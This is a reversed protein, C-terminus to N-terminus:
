AFTPNANCYISYVYIYKDVMFVVGSAKSSKTASILPRKNHGISVSTNSIQLRQKLDLNEQELSTIRSELDNVKKNLKENEELLTQKEEELCTLHERKRKRSLLAAARNKILREQRKQIQIQKQDLQEQQQKDNNINDATTSPTSSTSSTNNITTTTTTTTSPITNTPGALLSHETKISSPETKIVIPSTDMHPRPALPKPALLSPLPTVNHTVPERKKRGRKKKPQESDSLSCTSSSSSSPSQAGTTTNTTTTSPAVTPSVTTTTTTIPQIFNPATPPLLFSFADLLDVGPQQQPLCPTFLNQHAAWNENALFDTSSMDLMFDDVIQKEPSGTTESSSSTSSPPSLPTSEASLYDANLYSMFLDEQEEQMEPDPKIYTM